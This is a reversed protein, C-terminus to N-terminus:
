SIPEAQDLRDAIKEAQEPGGLKLAKVLAWRRSPALRFRGGGDVYTDVADRIESFDTIHIDAVGAQVAIDGMAKEVPEALYQKKMKESLVPLLYRRLQFHDEGDLDFEYKQGTIDIIKQLAQGDNLMWGLGPPDAAEVAHVVKDIDEQDISVMTELCDDDGYIDGELQGKIKEFTECALDFLGAERVEEDAVLSYLNMVDKNSLLM